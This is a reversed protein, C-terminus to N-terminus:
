TTAQSGLLYNAVYRVIFYALAVIIAGIVSFLMTMSGKKVKEPNGYATFYLVAGYIGYVLILFFIIPLIFEYVAPIIDRKIINAIESGGTGTIASNNINKITDSGIIAALKIM